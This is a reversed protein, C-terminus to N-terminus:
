GEILTISSPLEDHCPSPVIKITEVEEQEEFHLNSVV